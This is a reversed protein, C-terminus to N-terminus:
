ERQQKLAAEDEEKKEADAKRKKAADQEAKLKNASRWKGIASRRRQM